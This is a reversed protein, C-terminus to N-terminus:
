SDLVPSDPHAMLTATSGSLLTHKISEETFKLQAPHAKVKSREDFGVLCGSYGSEVPCCEALIGRVVDKPV